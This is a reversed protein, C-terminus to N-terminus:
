HIPSRHHPGQLQRLTTNCPWLLRLGIRRMLLAPETTDAAVEVEVAVAVALEVDSVSVCVCVGGLALLFLASLLLRTLLLASLRLFFM